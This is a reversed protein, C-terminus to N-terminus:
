YNQYAPFSIVALIAIIAVVIILETFTFSQETNKM